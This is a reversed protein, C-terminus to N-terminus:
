PRRAVKDTRSWASYGAKSKARVKCTYKTNTRLKTVTIRTGKKVTATRVSKGATCKAQYGTIKSGRARSKAYTVKAKTASTRKAHVKTPKTPKVTGRKIVLKRASFTIGTADVLMADDGSEQKVTTTGSGLSTTLSGSTMSAPDNIGYVERLYANPIRLHVFGKFVTTGDVRYHQNALRILLRNTDTASDFEVEPPISTVGVNTSLNMGYMADRQAVDDWTGYDTVNGALYAIREDSATTPCVWPWSSTTCEDNDTVTTPRATITIRYRGSGLSARSVHVDTGYASSVRPVFATDLTVSWTDSLAPSGLDLADSATESWISWSIAKEGGAASFTAHASWNPDSSSVPAGNRTLARVCNADSSSTCWDGGDLAQAGSPVSLPALVSMVLAGSAALAASRRRM